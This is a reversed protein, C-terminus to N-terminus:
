KTQAVKAVVPFLWQRVHDTVTRLRDDDVCERYTASMDGAAPAHGMISQVAALDRAGEAITQFTHRLAYFSLGSRRVPEDKGDDGKIKAKDLARIMEGAVRYGNDAAYAEGRPGIFLLSRYEPAKPERRANLAARIAEITEPWLPIRRGIGTKPRPFMLWGAKLDVATRPLGAVDSNGLGGNVGLLIMAKGNVSAADLVALLEAREFMRLGRRARNHRLVKASPKKFGPGFRPPKDLLGSDYGFKFISRVRQIENALRVPGWQRAINQRLRAFDDAVLAEVLTDRGFLKALREICDRYEAFMRGGIEGADRLARKHNQFDNCLRAVTVGEPAAQPKKGALLDDKQARWLTLAAKGKPDDAVKGFYVLKGRVKKAWYGAAHPFLPFDHRPKRVKGPRSKRTTNSAAVDGRPIRGALLADKQDLWKTLAATGDPDTAVKGFYHSRGRIKKCWYGRPHATLPFDPRPKKGTGPKRIPKSM